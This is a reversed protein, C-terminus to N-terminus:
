ERMVRNRLVRNRLVRNRLVRNPMVRNCMVRNCIVRTPNVDAHHRGFAPLVCPRSVKTLWWAASGSLTRKLNTRPWFGRAWGLSM